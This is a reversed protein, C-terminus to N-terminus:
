NKLGRLVVIAQNVINNLGDTLGISITTKGESAPTPTLATVLILNNKTVKKDEIFDLPLETKHKGHM